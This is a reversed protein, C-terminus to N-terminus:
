TGGNIWCIGSNHCIHFEMVPYDTILYTEDVLVTRRGIDVIKDGEYWNDCQWNSSLDNQGHAM